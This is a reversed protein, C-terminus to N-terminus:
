LCVWTLLILLALAVGANILFKALPMMEPVYYIAIGILVLSAATAWGIRMLLTLM